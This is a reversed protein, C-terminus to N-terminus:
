LSIRMVENYAEVAKNRIQVLMDMALQAQAAAVPVTHADDIQGTSLLYEQQELNAESETVNNVLGQFINKFLGKDQTKEAEKTQGLSELSQPVQIPTIFDTNM